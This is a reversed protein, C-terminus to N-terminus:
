RGLYISQKALVLQLMLDNCPTPIGHERGLRCVAGTIIRIETERHHTVDQVMSSITEDTMRSVEYAHELRPTMTSRAAAPTRWSSLRKLGAHPGGRQAYQNGDVFGNKTELLASMGNIAVNALLKHWIANMVNEHVQVELGAARLGEAMEEVKAMPAKLSGMNTVGTGTHKVHGPAVPTSGFATNGIIIQEEPVVKAIEDYNGLGNQLCLIMTHKDIMPLANRVAAELYQYHVFVILLDVVGIEKPDTTAMAPHFVVTEGTGTGPVCEDVLIGNKKISEIVPAYTDLVCVEHERSLYSAYCSGIAGCGVFGIKM